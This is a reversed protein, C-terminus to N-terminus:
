YVLQHSPLAHHALVSQPIVYKIYILNISFCALAPAFLYQHLFDAVCIVKDCVCEFRDKSNMQQVSDYSIDLNKVNLWKYIQQSIESYVHLQDFTRLLYWWIKMLINNTLYGIDEKEKVRWMLSIFEKLEVYGGRAVYIKTVVTSSFIFIFLCLLKDHQKCSYLHSRLKSSSSLHMLYYIPLILTLCNRFILLYDYCYKM